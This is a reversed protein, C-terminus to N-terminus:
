NESKQPIALTNSLPCPIVCKFAKSGFRKHYYCIDNKASEPKERSKSRFNRKHKYNFRSKSRSRKIELASIRKELDALSSSSDDHKATEVQSVSSYMSFQGNDRELIKDALEALKNLPVDEVVALTAQVRMPLRQLWISHLINDSMTGGSLQKIERLLVSPKKDNLELGALLQRLRKEESDTFRKILAEKIHKYKEKDPVNEIIDSVTLLSQEDLHRIVSSFKIDDSRIRYILFESELQAFWLKPNKHWFTPLKICRFENSHIQSEGSRFPETDPLNFGEADTNNLNPVEYDTTLRASTDSARNPTRDLPMM